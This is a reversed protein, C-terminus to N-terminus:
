EILLLTILVTNAVTDKFIYTEKTALALCIGRTQWLHALELHSYRQSQRYIM